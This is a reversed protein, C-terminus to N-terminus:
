LGDDVLVGAAITKLDNWVTHEVSLGHALAYERESRMDAAAISQVIRDDALDDHFNPRLDFRRSMILTLSQDTEDPEHTVYSRLTPFEDTASLSVAHAQSGSANRWYALVSTAHRASRALYGVILARNHCDEVRVTALGQRGALAIGADVALGGTCLIGAGQASFVRINDARWREALHTGTETPLYALAKGLERVGSLGHLQLWAVMEAAEAREGPRMGLAEFAKESTAVLESYSVHIM